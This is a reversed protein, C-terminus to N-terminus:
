PLYKNQHHWRWVEGTSAHVTILKNAAWTIARAHCRASLLNITVHSQPANTAICFIRNVEGFGNNFGCAM